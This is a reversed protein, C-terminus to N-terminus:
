GHIHEGHNFVKVHIHKFNPLEEFVREDPVKRDLPYGHPRKDPYVGNAGYHNYKTNEHLGPVAADADGDTVAVVLDFELGKDNGKPLLFRNPLGTASAFETLGAGGAEIKAFLTDISPVDPVTVSSETSKREISNKGGKVAFRSFFRMSGCEFQSM